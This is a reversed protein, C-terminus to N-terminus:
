GQAPQAAEATSEAPAQIPAKISSQNGPQAQAAPAAGPQAQVPAKVPSQTQAPVPAQAQEQPQAAPQMLSQRVVGGSEPKPSAQQAVPPQAPQNQIAQNQAAQNQPPQSQVPQPKAADQAQQGGQQGGQQVPASQSSGGEPRIVARVQNSPQAPASPQAAPEAPKAPEPDRTQPGPQEAAQPAPKPQAAQRSGEAPKWRAGAPDPFVQLQIAKDGKPSSVFGFAETNTLVVLVNDATEVSAVQKGGVGGAGPNKFSTGAPFLMEIRNGGTRLVMPQPAKKPFNVTLVDASPGVALSYSQGWATAPLLALICLCLLWSARALSRATM